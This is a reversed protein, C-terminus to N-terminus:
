PGSVRLTHHPDAGVSSADPALIFSGADTSRTRALAARPYAPSRYISSANLARTGVAHTYPTGAVVRHSNMGLCIGVIHVCNGSMIEVWFSSSSGYKSPLGSTFTVRAEEISINM